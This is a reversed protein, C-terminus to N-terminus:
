FDAHAYCDVILNAGQSNEHWNRKNREPLSCNNKNGVWTNEKSFSFSMCMSSCCTLYRTKFQKGFVYAIRCFLFLEVNVQKSEIRMNELTKRQKQRKFKTQM